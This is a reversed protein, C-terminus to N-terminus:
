PKLYFVSVQNKKILYLREDTILAIECPEPLVLARTETTFLDIFKLKGDQIYYLEEGLFNFYSLGKVEIVKILKGISNLVVIGKNQDLLFIFNQYERISVIKSKKSIFSQLSAEMTVTSSRLNVKKISWDASDILVLSQDGFTSVLYPAIAFAQDIKATLVEELMPNLFQYSQTARTYTFLRAGDHPDFVTSLSKHTSSALLMGDVSYKHISGSTLGLYLEGPRDVSAAAINEKVEFSKIKQFQANACFPFLFFLVIWKMM